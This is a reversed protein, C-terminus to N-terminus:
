MVQSSTHLEISDTISRTFKLPFSDDQKKLDLINFTGGHTYCKHLVEIMRDTCPDIRVFTFDIDLFSMREVFDRPDFGDPDGRPFRDSVHVTHFELGHAPADAIHFVIKVDAGSWDQHLAAELGHAVDEARDDGGVAEIRQIHRMTDAPSQFPVVVLPHEDGYDRYGIFAIQLAANETETKVHQALEVMRTKAQHIWPGMSATCDM